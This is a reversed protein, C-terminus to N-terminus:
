ALDSRPAGEDQIAKLLGQEFAVLEARHRSAYDTIAKLNHAGTTRVLDWEWLTHLCMSIPAEEVKFGRSDDYWDAKVGTVSTNKMRHQSLYCSFNLRNLAPGLYPHPRNFPPIYIDIPRQFTDELRERGITLKEVVVEPHDGRFESQWTPSVLNRFRHIVNGFPTNVRKNFLDGSRRLEGSLKWYNHDYGHLCPIVYRLSRLFKVAKRDLLGPSIGLHYAVGAEEFHRLIANVGEMDDLRPRIGTPYDDVRLTPLPLKGRWVGIRLNLGEEIRLRGEFDFPDSTRLLQDPQIIVVWPHRYRLDQAFPKDALPAPLVPITRSLKALGKRRQLEEFPEFVAPQGNAISTWATLSSLIGAVRRALGSSINM